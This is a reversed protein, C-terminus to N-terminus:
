VIEEKSTRSDKRSLMLQYEKMKKFMLRVLRKIHLLLQYNGKTTLNLAKKMLSKIKLLFSKVQNNDYKPLQNFFEIIRIIGFDTDVIMNFPIYVKM